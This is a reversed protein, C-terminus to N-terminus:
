FTRKILLVVTVLGTAARGVTVVHITDDATYEKRM